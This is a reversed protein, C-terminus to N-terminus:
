IHIQGKMIEKYKGMVRNPKKGVRAFSNHYNLGWHFFIVKTTINHEEILISLFIGLENSM